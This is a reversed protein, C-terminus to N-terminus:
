WDLNRSGDANPDSDRRSGTLITCSFFHWDEWLCRSGCIGVISHITTPIAWLPRSSSHADFPRKHSWSDNTEDGASFISFRIITTAARHSHILLYPLLGQFLFATDRILKSLPSWTYHYNCGACITVQWRCQRWFIIAQRVVQPAWM